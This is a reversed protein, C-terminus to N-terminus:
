LLMTNSVTINYVIFLKRNRVLVPLSKSRKEKSNLKVPVKYLNYLSVWSNEIAEEMTVVDIIPAKNLARKWFEDERRTATLGLFYQSKINTLIKSFEESCVTHIEDIILYETNFEM